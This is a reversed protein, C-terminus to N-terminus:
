QQMHVHMHVMHWVSYLLKKLLNQIASYCKKRSPLITKILLKASGDYDVFDGERLGASTRM